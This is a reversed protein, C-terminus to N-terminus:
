AIPHARLEPPLHRGLPSDGFTLPVACDCVAKAVRFGRGLWAPTLDIFGIDGQRTSSGLADGAHCAHGDDLWRRLSDHSGHWQFRATPGVPAEELPTPEGWLFALAQLAETAAADLAERRGPRAGFGMVLPADKTRPFGFVGVVELSRSFLRDGPEPFAYARVDFTRAKELPSSAAPFAVREPRTEGYWARLIRDREALEWTARLCATSWDAHLAVGNSRAHRWRAPDDSEPFAHIGAVQGVSDGASTLLAYAKQKHRIAELTSIRELLEFYSRPSPASRTDAASGTVEEGDPGVSAVGARRIEVGDAVFADEVVELPTWGDPLPFTSLLDRLEPTM